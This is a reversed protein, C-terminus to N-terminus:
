LSVLTLFRVSCRCCDVFCTLRVARGCALQGLIVRSILETMVGLWSAAKLDTSPTIELGQETRFGTSTIIQSLM